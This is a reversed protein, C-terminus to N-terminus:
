TNICCMTYLNARKIFRLQFKRPRSLSITKCQSRYTTVRSLQRPRTLLIELIYRAIYEAESYVKMRQFGDLGYGVDKPQAM